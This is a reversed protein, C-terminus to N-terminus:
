ISCHKLRGNWINNTWSKVVLAHLFTWWNHFVFRLPMISVLILLLNLNSCHLLLMSKTCFASAWSFVQLWIQSWNLSIESNASTAGPNTQHKTCWFSFWITRMTNSQHCINWFFIDRCCTFDFSNSHSCLRLLSYFFINILYATM